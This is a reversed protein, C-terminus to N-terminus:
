RTPIIQPGGLKLYSCSFLIFPEALSLVMTKGKPRLGLNAEWKPFKQSYSELFLVLIPSKPIMRYGKIWEISHYLIVMFINIKQLTIALFGVYMALSSTKAM